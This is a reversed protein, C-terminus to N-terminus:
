LRTRYRVERLTLDGIQDVKRGSDVKWGAAEYFHRTRDNSDLVWLIASTFGFGQLRDVGEQFLQRGIGQGWWRKRLYIATVEGESPDAGEDRSPCVHVFGTIEGATEAVLLAERDGPAEAIGGWFERRRDFSEPLRALYDEPLQGSYAEQWCAIHVNAIAVADEVGADRIRVDEAHLM